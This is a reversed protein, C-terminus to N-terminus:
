CNLYYVNDNRRICSDGLFAGFSIGANVPIVSDYDGGIIDFVIQRSLWVKQGSLEVPLPFEGVPIASQMVPEGM